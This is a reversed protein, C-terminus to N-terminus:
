LSCFFYRACGYADRACGPMMVVMVMMTMMMWHDELRFLESTQLGIRLANTINAYQRMHIM